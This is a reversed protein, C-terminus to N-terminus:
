HISKEHSIKNYHTNIVAIIIAVTIIIIVPSPMLLVFNQYIQFFGV